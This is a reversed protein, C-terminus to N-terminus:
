DGPVIGGPPVVFEVDKVAAGRGGHGAPPKSRAKTREAEARMRNLYGMKQITGLSVDEYLERDTWGTQEQIQIEGVWVPVNTGTGM